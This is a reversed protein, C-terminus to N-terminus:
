KRRTGVFLRSIMVFHGASNSQKHDNGLNGDCLDMTTLGRTINHHHSLEKTSGLNPEMM